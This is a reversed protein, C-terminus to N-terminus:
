RTPERLGFFRPGNWKSGAIATAAASLSRFERGEWRFGTETVVVEVARGNWTRRLVAGVGLDLGEAQDRGHGILRRRLQADIGGYAQAQIRWAILMRLLEVSRLAPPEGWRRRWGGRRGPRDRRARAQVEAEIDATV